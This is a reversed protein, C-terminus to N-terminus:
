FTIDWAVNSDVEIKIPIAPNNIDYGEWNLVLNGEPSIKLYPDENSIHVACTALANISEGYAFVTFDYNNDPNINVRIKVIFDYSMSKGPDDQITSNNSYEHDYVTYNITHKFSDSSQSSIKFNLKKANSKGQITVELENQNQNNSVSYNSNKFTIFEPKGEQKVTRSVSGADLSSIILQTNRAERGEYTKGTVSVKSNGSGSSPNVTIWKENYTSIM